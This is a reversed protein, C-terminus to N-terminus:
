RRLYMRHQREYSLRGLAAIGPQSMFDLETTDRVCLVRAERRMRAVTPEGRAELVARWDM